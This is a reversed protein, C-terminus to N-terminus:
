YALLPSLQNGLSSERFHPHQAAIGRKARNQHSVFHVSQYRLWPTFAILCDASRDQGLAKLVDDSARAQNDTHLWERCTLGMNASKIRDFIGDEINAAL